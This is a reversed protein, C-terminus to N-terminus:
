HLSITWSLHRLFGVSEDTPSIPRNRKLTNFMYTNNHRILVLTKYSVSPSLTHSEYDKVTFYGTSRRGTIVAPVGNYTVTDFLRFGHIVRPAQNRKWRGGKLLNSKMIKRNHRRLQRIRWVTDSPRAAPHGSICRADVFHTKELGCAIRINKTVYGYTLHVPIDLGTKLRNYVAWRMVNMAAADRLSASPRRLKLKLTGAHYAKHCTECLTVLNDPSDGGTKRSEVHHVNLVKDKSKSHCCQCRHGDRYLVYERVNWFGLQPGHQYDTSTIGPDKIWQTDFQAVEVTVSTIPIFSCVDKVIKVHSEAKQRVSPALWGDKRRRNDFRPARYRLRSRRTRRTERRTSLLSVIDTRLQVEASYLERSETTTSLGIHASGADVGLSVPQTFATTEYILRITFPTHSVISALGDRLMKRVKGARQTPMLPKGNIDLVYIYM